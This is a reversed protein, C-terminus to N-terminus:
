KIEVQGVIISDGAAQGNADFVRLRAGTAEDYLGVELKYLGPPAKSQIPLTYGDDITAGPPWATTPLQGGRPLRDVQGWLLNNQAANYQSGLLHVFVTYSTALPQDTKWFLTLPVSDGAYFQRNPLDLGILHISDGLGYNLATTVDAAGTDIARPLVHLTALRRQGLRAQAVVYLESATTDPPIVLDGEAREHAGISIPLTAQAVITGDPKQLGLQVDALDFSQWYTVVRATDGPQGERIPLDFGILRLRSDFEDDRVFQPAFNAPPVDKVNHLTNAYLTLRKDGFTQEYQKTWHQALDTEVLHQPDQALADPITVVWVSQYQMAQVAIRHATNADVPKGNPVGVWDLPQRLYYLFTPWEQDTNLVIADGPIASNNIVNALTAYEDRLVRGQFYDNLTFLQAAVIGLGIALAVYRTWKALQALFLLGLGLLLAYAPMLILLYRAQIKPAFFAAPTLSLIYILIPPVLVIVLAIGTGETMLRHFPTPRRIFWGVSLAVLLTFGVVVWTYNEIYTTVGLALVTAALRLFLGFDFAPAAAWTAANQLYLALWPAFLALVAVQAIVWGVLLPRVPRGGRWERLLVFLIFLNDALFILAALYHSYLALTISVIYGAWALNSLQFTLLNSPTAELGDKSLHRANRSLPRGKPSTSRQVQGQVIELVFWVSALAFFGSITYNKIDQSWWIHFRALALLFAALLGLGPGGIRRGLRYLLAVTLLGFFVSFFRGIFADTGAILQWYHMLWYHLPPHEDSATRLAIWALDHRSLWTTWGEDWWINQDALRYVRLFFALALIASSIVSANVRGVHAKLNQM